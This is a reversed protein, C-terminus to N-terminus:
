AAALGKLAAAAAAPDREAIVTSGKIAASRASGRNVYFFPEPNQADGPSFAFDGSTLSLTQPLCVLRTNDAGATGAAALLIDAADQLWATLQMLGPQCSQPSHDEADGTMLGPLAYPLQKAFKDRDIGRHLLEVLLWAEVEAPSHEEPDLVHPVPRGNSLFQMELSPLRMELAVGNEFSKTIFAADAARFELETRRDPAGEAVYSSAIRALWQVLNIAETRAKALAAADTGAGIGVRWRPGAASNGVPKVSNTM